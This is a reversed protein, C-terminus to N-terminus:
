APAVDVPLRTTKPKGVRVPIRQPAGFWRDNECLLDVEVLYEGPRQPAVVGLLLVVTEGPAVPSRFPSRSADESLPDGAATLWRYGARVLPPRDLGGPWTVGGENRVQLTILETTGASLRLGTELAEITCAYDAPDLPRSDWHVDIEDRHGHPLTARDVPSAAPDPAARLVQQIVERDGAPVPVAPDLARGEPLYFMGVPEGGPLVQPVPAIREYGAAKRAREAVPRLVLDLHYLPEQRFEMPDVPRASTHVIGPFSLVRPDNLVLRLQHDPTWPREDIWQNGDGQAWRRPFWYQVRDEREVLARLQAVLRPSAVEDGDIRFVWRGRCQRHAWALCREMPAVFDFLVLRDCALAYEALTEDTVSADAAIVIEDAVGRFPALVAAIQPGPDNTICLVSLGAMRPALRGLRPLGGRM